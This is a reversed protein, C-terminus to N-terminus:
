FIGPIWRKVRAKYDAYEAGFIEELQIEDEQARRNFWVMHFALLAVAPLSRFTIALGAMFILHGLYMPNRLYKFPGQDVIRLPPVGLGPGGGGIRARYRGVLLYQLYGWILLPAGWPVFALDGGRLVLEVAVVCVPYLVFSRNSTSKLWRVLTRRGGPPPAAVGNDPGATPSAM